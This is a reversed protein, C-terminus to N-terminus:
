RALAREVIEKLNGASIPKEVVATAGALTARDVLEPTRQSTMLVFPVKVSAAGRNARRMLEVGDMGEMNVDSIVLAVREKQLVVLAEEGSSAELVEYTDPLHLKVIRRIVKSDDVILIRHSVGV